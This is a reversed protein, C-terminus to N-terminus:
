PAVVREAELVPPGFSRYILCRVIPDEEDPRIGSGPKLRMRRVASRWFQPDDAPADVIRDLTHCRTCRNVTLECSARIEPPADAVADTLVTGRDIAGCATLLALALLRIM